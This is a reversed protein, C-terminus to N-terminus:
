KVYREFANTLETLSLVGSRVSTLEGDKFFLTAPTGTINYKTVFPNRDEADLEDIVVEIVTVDTEQKQFDEIIPEYDKCFSCTSASVVVIFSEKNEIKSEVDGPTATSSSGCGVLGIVLVFLSLVSLLKKM